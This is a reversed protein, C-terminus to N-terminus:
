GQKSSIRQKKDAVSTAGCFGRLFSLTQFEDKGFVQGTDFVLLDLSVTVTKQAAIRSTLAAASNSLPGTGAVKSSLHLADIPTVLRNGAPEVEMGNSKSELNYYLRNHGSLQDAYDVFSLHLTYAVIAHSSNNQLVLSYPLLSFLEASPTQNLSALM